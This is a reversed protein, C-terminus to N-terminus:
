IMLTRKTINHVFLIREFFVHLSGVVRLFALVAFVTIRPVVYILVENGLMIVLTAPETSSNLSIKARM